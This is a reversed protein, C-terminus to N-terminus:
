TILRGELGVDSKYKRCIEDLNAQCISMSRDGNSDVIGM